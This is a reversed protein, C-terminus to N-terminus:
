GKHIEALGKQRSGMRGNLVEPWESPDFCPLAKALDNLTKLTAMDRILRDRAQDMRGRALSIQQKKQNNM